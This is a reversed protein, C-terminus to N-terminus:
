LLQVSVWKFEVEDLPERHLFTGGMEHTGGIQM